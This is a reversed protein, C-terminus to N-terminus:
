LGRERCIVDYAANIAAIKRQAIDVAERPLGRATLVDPHNERVLERYRAKLAANDARHDLGLVVYPDDRDEVFQARIARYEATEYGFISGIQALLRDEGEHIIGDATAIHFLAEFVFRKAAPDNALEQAITRAYTDYGTLDQKARDFVARVNAREAEAVHFMREFTAVEVPLSVGDAKSMKACLSVVAITFSTSRAGPALMRERRGMARCAVDRLWGVPTFALAEILTKVTM